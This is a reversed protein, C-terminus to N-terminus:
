IWKLDLKKAFLLNSLNKTLINAWKNEKIKNKIEKVSKESRKKENEKM